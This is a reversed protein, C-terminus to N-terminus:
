KAKIKLVASLVVNSMRKLSNINIQEVDGDEWVKVKQVQEIIAPDIFISGGLTAHKSSIGVIEKLGQEKLFENLKGLSVGSDVDILAEEIGIGFKGVKGKIGGIRINSTRNKIVIGRIGRVPPMFKTGSGLIMLPLRLDSAANLCNIMENQTTAIYFIQAPGGIKSFTHYALREEVKIREPGLVSKLLAVKDNM